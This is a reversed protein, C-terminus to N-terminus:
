KEASSIYEPLPHVAEENFRYQDVHRPSTPFFDNVHFNYKAQVNALLKLFCSLRKQASWELPSLLTGLTGRDVLEGFPRSCCLSKNFNALPVLFWPVGNLTPALKTGKSTTLFTHSMSAPSNSKNSAESSGHQQKWFSVCYNSSILNKKNNNVRHLFNSSSVYHLNSASLSQLHQLIKM